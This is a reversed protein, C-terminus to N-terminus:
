WKIRVAVAYADNGIMPTVTVRRDNNEDSDFVADVSHWAMYWGLVAQSLYHANDNIRSWATATSAVYAAYKWFPHDSNMRAVTIFPVAGVFAHGSVGNTDSFPRWKSDHSTEGPRSGGTALQMLLTPPGGVLYARSAHWGWQGIPSECDRSCIAAGLFSIPIMYYGNGFDKATKSFDDTGSSRIDNQFHDQFDSDISTNAMIGGVGFGIGLQILRDRTYFNKYDNVITDKIYMDGTATMTGDEAALAQYQFSGAALLFLLLV